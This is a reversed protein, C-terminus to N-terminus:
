LELRMLRSTESAENGPGAWSETAQLVSAVSLQAPGPFSALTESHVLQFSEAWTSLAVAAIFAGTTVLNNVTYQIMEKSLFVNTNKGIGFDM